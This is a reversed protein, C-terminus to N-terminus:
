CGENLSSVDISLWSDDLDADQREVHDVSVQAFGVVAANEDVGANWAEFALVEADVADHVMGGTVRGARLGHGALRLPEDVATSLTEVHTMAPRQLSGLHKAVCLHWDLQVRSMTHAALM